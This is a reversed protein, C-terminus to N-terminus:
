RVVKATLVKTYGSQARVVTFTTIAIAAVVAGSIILVKKLKM